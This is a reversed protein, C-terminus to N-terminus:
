PIYIQMENMAESPPYPVFFDLTELDSLSLDYRTLVNYDNIIEQDSYNALTDPHFVYISILGEPTSEILAALSGTGHHDYYANRGPPTKQMSGTVIETLATDPYFPGHTYPVASEINHDANNVVHITEIRAPFDEKCSNSVLVLYLSLVFMIKSTVKIM